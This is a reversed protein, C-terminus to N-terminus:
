REFLWFDRVTMAPWGGRGSGCASLIGGEKQCEGVPCKNSYSHTHQKSHTHTCGPDGPSQTDLDSRAWIQPNGARPFSPAVFSHDKVLSEMAAPAVCM